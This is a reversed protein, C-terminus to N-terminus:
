LPILVFQKMRLCAELVAITCPLKGNESVVIAAACVFPMVTRLESLQHILEHRTTLPRSLESLEFALFGEKNRLNVQSVLFRATELMTDPRIQFAMVSTKKTRTEGILDEFENDSLEDLGDIPRTYVAASSIFRGSAILHLLTNLENETENLGAEDTM